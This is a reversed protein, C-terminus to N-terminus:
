LFHSVTDLELIEFPDYEVYDRELTVVKFLMVAFFSWLVVLAVIRCPLSNLSM